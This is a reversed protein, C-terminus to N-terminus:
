YLSCVEEMFDRARKAHTHHKRVHAICGDSMRQLRDPDSQNVIRLVDGPSEYHFSLGPLLDDQGPSSDCLPICGVAAYELMKAPDINYKSKCTLGFRHQGALALYNKYPLIRGPSRVVSRCERLVAARMPYVSAMSNGLFLLKHKKQAQIHRPLVASDVSFPLWALKPGVLGHAGRAVSVHEKHRFLVMDAAFLEDRARAQYHYDIMVAVRKVSSPLEIWDRGLAWPKHDVVVDPGFSDVARLFSGEGKQGRWRLVDHGLARLEKEFFDFHLHSNYKGSRDGVVLFRM